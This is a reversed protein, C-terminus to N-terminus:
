IRSMKSKWRSSFTDRSTPECGLGHQRSGQVGVLLAPCSLDGPLHWGPVCGGDRKSLWIMEASDSRPGSGCDKRSRDAPVLGDEYALVVAQVRDRLGLRALIRTIHTKVTPEALYLESSIEANSLGRAIAQLM